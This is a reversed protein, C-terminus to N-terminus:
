PTCCCRGRHSSRASWQWSYGGLQQCRTGSPSPPGPLQMDQRIKTLKDHMGPRWYTGRVPSKGSVSNSEMWLESTNFLSQEWPNQQSAIHQQHKFVFCVVTSATWSHLWRMMRRHIYEWCVWMVLPAPAKWEAPWLLSPYTPKPVESCRIKM